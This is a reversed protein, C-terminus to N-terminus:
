LLQYVLWVGALYRQDLFSHIHRSLATTESSRHSRHTMHFFFRTTFVLSQAHLLASINGKPKTLGKSRSDVAKNVSLSDDLHRRHLFAICYLLWAPLHMNGSKSHNSSLNPSGLRTGNCSRTCISSMCSSFVSQLSVQSHNKQDTCSRAQSHIPWLLEPSCFPLM